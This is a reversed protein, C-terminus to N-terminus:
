TSALYLIAELNKKRRQPLRVVEKVAMNISELEQLTSGLVQEFDEAEVLGGRKVQSKDAEYQPKFLSLIIGDQKINRFASPLIHVQPTWAVDISIIDVKVPLNVHMANTREMVIVRDDCRLKWELMGYGTDVAYVKSAGEHLFCDTFGGINCGFDAAIKDKVPVDLKDIAYKLKEGGKGVYITDNRNM